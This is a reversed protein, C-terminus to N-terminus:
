AVVFAEVDVSHRLDDGFKSLLAETQSPMCRLAEIKLNYLEDSLEFHIACDNSECVRPVKINFFINLEKDANLMHEYQKRTHIAHYIVAESGSLAKALGTWISVTIHDPHGTMGDPGFTFISNPQYQHILKAIQRVANNTDVRDCAGDGYGLWHHNSVGLVSYANILEQERIVALKEAPWRLEDQVGAEGRTATICAVNQGNKTAAAMIGGMSFTEDDPHAWIGLITGLARLDDTTKLPLSGM